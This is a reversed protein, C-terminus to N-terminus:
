KIKKNNSIWFKLDKFIPYNLNHSLLRWTRPLYNLYLTKGQEKALREFIGIIKFLRQTGLILYTTEFNNKNYNMKKEYYKYLIKQNKISIFTRVDQLLSVLDYAPHGLLGDQFDIVGINKINRRNKLYFINDVHFDRLVICNEKNEIKNFLKKWIKNWEVIQKSNKKNSLCLHWKYFLSLEKFLIKNSYTNLFTPPTSRSLNILFDIAKKYLYIKKSKNNKIIYSFKEKGFNEIVLIGNKLDKKYINPASYHNKTLWNSILIFNSLSKKELSSDMIIKKKSDNKIIFYKRKSADNKIPAISSFNISYKILFNQVNIPLLKKNMM